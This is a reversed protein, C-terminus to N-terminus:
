WRARFGRVDVHVFPGHTATSGYVGIGGIRNGFEGRRSMTDVLTALWQADGQDLKGDRNLDDMRGDAPSQDVFIDAADGWTHRSYPVNGIAHNYWPTRFGSMIVLSATHRGQANLAALIQELKLLLPPRLTLYKPYGQSQKSVFQGLRFNPSIATNANAPTVEVFGAPPRYIALGKLPDQPYNGLRYGNLYGDAGATPASTLTFVNIVATENSVDNRVELRTLGPEAPATFSTAGVEATHGRFRAQGHEDIAAFAVDFAKGPMMYLAFERYPITNGDVVLPVALRGSDWRAASGDAWGLAPLLVLLCAVFSARNM